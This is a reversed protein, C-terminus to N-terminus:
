LKTQVQQLIRQVPESREQAVWEAIRQRIAQPVEFKREECVALFSITATARKSRVAELSLDTPGFLLKESFGIFPLTLESIGDPRTSLRDKLKDFFGKLREYLVGQVEKGGNALAKEVAPPTQSLYDSLALIDIIILNLRPQRPNCV